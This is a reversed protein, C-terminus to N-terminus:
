GCNSCAVVDASRPRLFSAQTFHMAGSPLFDLAANRTFIPTYDYASEAVVVSEGIAIMDAPVLAKAEADKLAAMGNYTRSWQVKYADKTTRTVSSVRVDLAAAPYPKMIEPGLALVGDIEARTLTSSQAVLDAVMPAVHEARKRAMYAQCFVVLGAYLIIMVPALLAFEVASVGREDRILRRILRIPPSRRM